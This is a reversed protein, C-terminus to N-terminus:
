FQSDKHVYGIEGAIGALENAFSDRKALMQAIDRELSKIKAVNERRSNREDKVLDEAEAIKRQLADIQYNMDRVKAAAKSAAASVGAAESKLTHGANDRHELADMVEDIRRQLDTMTADEADIADQLVILAANQYVNKWHSFMTSMKGMRKSDLFIRLKARNLEDMMALREEVARQAAREEEMLKHLRIFGHFQRAVLSRAIKELLIAVKMASQNNKMNEAAINDHHKLWAHWCKRGISQLKGQLFQKLRAGAETELMKKAKQQNSHVLLAKFVMSKMKGLKQAFYIKLKAVAGNDGLMALKAKMAEMDEAMQRQLEELRKELIIDKWTKFAPMMKRNIWRLLFQKVKREIEEATLHAFRSANAALFESRTRQFEEWKKQMVIENWTSFASAIRSNKMKRLMLEMKTRQEGGIMNDFQARAKDLAGGHAAHWKAAEGEVEDIERKICDITAYHVMEAWMRFSYGLRAWGLRHANLRAKANNTVLKLKIFETQCAKVVIDMKDADNVQSKAQLSFNHYAM